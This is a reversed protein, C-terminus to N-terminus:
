LTSQAVLTPRSFLVKRTEKKERNNLTLQATLSHRSALSLSFLFYIVFRTLIQSAKARTQPKFNKPPAPM